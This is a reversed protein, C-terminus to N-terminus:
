SAPTLFPIESGPCHTYCHPDLGNSCSCSLLRLDPSSLRFPSFPLPPSHNPTHPPPHFPPPSSPPPTKTPSSPSTSFQTTL